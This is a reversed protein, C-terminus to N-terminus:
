CLGDSMRPGPFNRDSYSETSMMREGCRESGRTEKVRRRESKALLRDNWSGTSWAWNELVRHCITPHSAVTLEIEAFETADTQDVDDSGWSEWGDLLYHKALRQLAPVLAV